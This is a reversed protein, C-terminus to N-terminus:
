TRISSLFGVRVNEQLKRHIEQQHEKINDITEQHEM